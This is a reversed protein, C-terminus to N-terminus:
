ATEKPTRARRTAPKKVPDPAPEPEPAPEQPPSIPARGMVQDRSIRSTYPTTYPVRRYVGADEAAEAEAVSIGLAEYVTGGMEIRM